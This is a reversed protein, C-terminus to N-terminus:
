GTVQLSVRSGFVFIPFSYGNDPAVGPPLNAGSDDTQDFSLTVQGFGEFNRTAYHFPNNRNIQATFYSNCFAGTDTPAAISLTPANLNGVADTATPTSSTANGVCRITDIASNVTGFCPGYYVAGNIYWVHQSTASAFGGFQVNSTNGNLGLTGTTFTIGGPNNNFVGWRYIGIGNVGPGGVGAGTFTDTFGTSGQGFAPVAVAEYIGDDGEPTFSNNSFPGGVWAFTNFTPVLITALFIAFVKKM